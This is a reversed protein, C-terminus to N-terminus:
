RGDFRYATQSFHLGKGFGFAKAPELRFVLADGGAHHFMGDGVTFRWEKGYKAEWAEALRRLVAEDAVRVADAEYVVDLGDDLSASGTTLVCRPNAALNRAKREGPGTTVHPAGDLWVAILPTVHPRGDPRVTSLWYGQAGALVERAREWPTSIADESSYRADLVAVTPTDAM